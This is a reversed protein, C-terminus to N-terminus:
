SKTLLYAQRYQAPKTKIATHIRHNNYYYIQKAIAEFLEGEHEFRGIDGLELKFHSYFSEQYGNQWPSGKASFSMSGGTLAVLRSTSSATYESGQDAHLFRPPPHSSLGDCYALHVLQAKHRKGLQWGVIERTFLDIVTALYYWAGNFWIYTFDTAWIHSPRVPQIDKVLNKLEAAITTTKPKIWPTSRVVTPYLNSARMVRRVRELGENLELAVREYGYAPHDNM